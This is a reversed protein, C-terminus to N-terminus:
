RRRRSPRYPSPRDEQDDNHDDEAEPLSRRSPRSRRLAVSNQLLPSSLHSGSQRRYLPSYPSLLGPASASSPYTTSSGVYGSSGTANGFSSPQTSANPTMYQAGSPEPTMYQTNSPGPTIYQNSSVDSTMHETDTYHPETWSQSSTAHTSSQTDVSSAGYDTAPYLQIQPPYMYAQQSVTVQYLYTLRNAMWGLEDETLNAAGERMSGELNMFGQQVNRFHPDRPATTAVSSHRGESLTPDMADLPQPFMPYVFDNLVENIAADYVPGNSPSGDPLPMQAQPQHANSRAGLFSSSAALPARCRRVEADSLWGTADTWPEPIGLADPYLTLYLRGWSLVIDGRIQPHADCSSRIHYDYLQEDIFDQLCRSCQHVCPPFGGHSGETRFHSRLKSMDTKACGGCSRTSGTVVSHKYVPCDVTRGKAKKNREDLAVLVHKGSSSAYSQKSIRDHQAAKSTTTNHGVNSKGNGRPGTRPPARSRYGSPDEACLDYATDDMTNMVARIDEIVKAYVSYADSRHDILM